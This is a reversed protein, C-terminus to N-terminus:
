RAEPKKEAAANLENLQRTWEVSLALEGAADAAARAETLLAVQAERAPAPSHALSAYVHLAAPRAGNAALWGAIERGLAWEAPAFRGLVEAFQLARVGAPADGRTQAVRATALALALDPFRKLAAEGAAQAEAERGRHALLKMQRLVAYPAFASPLRDLAALQRDLPVAFPRYLPDGVLLTQWSLVPLAYYAADGLTQGRSLARLLLNPRHTFGLYPESVNGL